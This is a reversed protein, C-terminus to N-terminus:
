ALHLNVHSDVGYFKSGARAGWHGHLWNLDGAPNQWASLIRQKTAGSYRTVSCITFAGPISGAGWQSKTSTTGGVFAVLAGAGNGSAIGTTVTGASRAGTNGACTQVVCKSDFRQTVTNWDAADSVIYPKERLLLDKFDNIL